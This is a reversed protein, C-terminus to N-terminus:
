PPLSPAFRQFNFHVFLVAVLLLVFCVGVTSLVDFLLMSVEQMQIAAPYAKKDCKSHSIRNLGKSDYSM